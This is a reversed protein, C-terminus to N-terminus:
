LATRMRSREKSDQRGACEQQCPTINWGRDGRGPNARSRAGTVRSSPLMRLLEASLCSM